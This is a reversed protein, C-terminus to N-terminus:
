RWALVTACPLEEMQCSTPVKTRALTGHSLTEVFPKIPELLM